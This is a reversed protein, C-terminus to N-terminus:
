IGQKRGKRSRMQEEDYANDNGGRSSSDVKDNDSDNINIDNNNDDDNNKMKETRKKRRKLIIGGNLKSKSGRLIVDSNELIEIDIRDRSFRRKNM